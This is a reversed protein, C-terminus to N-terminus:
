MFLSVIWGAFLAFGSYIILFLLSNVFQEWFNEKNAKKDRKVILFNVFIMLGIAEVLRLPEIKFTPVIFWAWLKLIVFGSIIPSIIIGLIITMLKGFNEM